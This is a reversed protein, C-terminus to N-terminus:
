VFYKRDSESYLVLVVDDVSWFKVEDMLIGGAVEKSYGCVGVGIFPIAVSKVELEDLIKGASKNSHGRYVICSVIQISELVKFRALIYVYLKNLIKTTTVPSSLTLM